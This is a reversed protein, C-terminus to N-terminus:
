ESKRGGVGFYEENNNNFFLLNKKGMAARSIRHNYTIKSALWRHVKAVSRRLFLNVNVTLDVYNKFDKYSLEGHIALHRTYMVLNM